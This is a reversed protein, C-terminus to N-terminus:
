TFLGIVLVVPNDAGIQRYALLHNKGSRSVPGITQNTLAGPV